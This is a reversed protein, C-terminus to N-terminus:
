GDRERELVSALFTQVAELWSEPANEVLSEHGANPFEVFTKRGRLRDFVRRAQAPTARPDAGGQLILVPAEIADAYRVPAHDRVRFGMQVGGWVCLLDAGPFAPLGMSRFRNRVANRTEDYVAEVVVASADLDQLTLARLVSVGGMSQGFLVLPAGPELDQRVFEVAAIVDLAERYGITTYGGSSGGHGRHDVLLCSMGLDFFMKTEPLLASKTSAYGHFLLVVASAREHPIWWAELEEHDSTAFRYTTSELSLDAPNQDNQPHPLAIGTVLVRLRAMWGLAEPAATRQGSPVFHLMSWAHSFAVANMAIGLGLVGAAAAIARRKGIRM